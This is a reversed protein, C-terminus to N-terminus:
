IRRWNEGSVCRASEPSVEQLKKLTAYATQNLPIHRTKGSKAIQGRVTVTRNEFNVDSWELKFLEGQRVGLNMSLLIMPKLHDAFPLASLSPLQTVGRDLRWVNGSERGSVIRRERKELATLLSEHEHDSLYRVVGTRDLKLLRISKIPNSEIFGWEVAKSLCSKLAAINRNVTASKTGSKKRENIWKEVKWATVEDLRTDNFEEFTSILYKVTREGRRHNAKAWNSYDGEVFARLTMLRSRKREKAPDIGQAVQGLAKRAEDRAQQLTLHGVRGLKVRQKLNLKNRYESYYTQVGSPQVRILLGLLETDRVEYPKAQPKLAAIQKTGFKMRM